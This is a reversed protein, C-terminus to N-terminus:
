SANHGCRRPCSVEWRWGGAVTDESPQLGAHQKQQPGSLLLRAKQEVLWGTKHQTNEGGKIMYRAEYSVPCPSVPWLSSKGQWGQWLGPCGLLGEVGQQPRQPGKKTAVGRGGGWSPTETDSGPHDYM